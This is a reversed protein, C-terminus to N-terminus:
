EILEIMNSILNAELTTSNNKIIINIIKFCEVIKPNNNEETNTISSFNYIDYTIYQSVKKKNPEINKLEYKIINQILDAGKAALFTELNNKDNCISHIFKLCNYKLNDSFEDNIKLSSKLEEMVNALGGRKVLFLKFNISIQAALKESKLCLNCFINNIEKSVECDDLYNEQIDFLQDIFNTDLKNKLIKEFVENNNIFGSLSKLSKM